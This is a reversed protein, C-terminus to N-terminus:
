GAPQVLLQVWYPGHGRNPAPALALGMEAFRPDMINQCHGASALWGEVVEEASMPGYAINEGVLRERYGAAKVRDAPTRGDLDVHEFYHRRVMDQAHDAAVSNLRPSLRVPAVSPYFQEGCRQGRDRAANVLDLVRESVRDASTEELLAIEAPTLTPLPAPLPVRPAHWHTAGDGAGGASGAGAGVAASWAGAETSMSGPYAPATLVVYTDLGSQYVGIHRLDASRLARCRDRDTSLTEFTGRVRLTAVETALYGAQRLADGLAAGEAWLRATADLTRLHELQPTFRGSPNCGYERLRQLDSLVDASANATALAMLLLLGPNWRARMPFLVIRIM